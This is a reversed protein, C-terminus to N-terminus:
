DVMMIEYSIAIGAIPQLLQDLPRDRGCVTDLRRIVGHRLFFQIWTIKQIVGHFM